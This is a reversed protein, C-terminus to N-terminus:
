YQGLDTNYALEFSINYSSQDLRSFDGMALLESREGTGKSDLQMFFGAATSMCLVAAACSWWVLRRRFKAQRPRRAAYALIRADLFEPVERQSLRVDSLIKKM